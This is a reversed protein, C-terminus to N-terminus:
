LCSARTLWYSGDFRGGICRLEGSALAVALGGDSATALAEIKSEFSMLPQSGAAPRAPDFTRLERDTTFVIQGGWHALNDPRTAPAGACEDLARNPKLAGDMVPVTLAADGAGTFREFSKALWGFM